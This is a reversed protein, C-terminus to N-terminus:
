RRVAHERALHEEAATCDFRDIYALDNGKRIVILPDVNRAVIHEAVQWNAEVLLRCDGGVKDALEKADRIKQRDEPKIYGPITCYLALFIDGSQKAREKRSSETTPINRSWGLSSGIHTVVYDIEALLVSGMSLNPFRHLMVLGELGSKGGAELLLKRATEKPGSEHIYFPDILDFQPVRLGMPGNKATLISAWPIQRPDNGTEERLRPFLDTDSSHFAGFVHECPLADPASEQVQHTVTGSVLQDLVSVSQAATSKKFPWM